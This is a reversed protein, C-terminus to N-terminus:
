HRQYSPGNFDREDVWGHAPQQNYNGAPQQNYDGYANPGGYNGPDPHHAYPDQYMQPMPMGGAGAGAAGQM